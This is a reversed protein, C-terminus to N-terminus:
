TPAPPRCPSAATTPAPPFTGNSAPTPPMPLPPPAPPTDAPPAPPVITGLESAQPPGPCGQQEPLLQWLLPQQTELRHTALPLLQVGIGPVQAFPLQLEPLQPPGPLGQQVVPVLVLVEVPVKHVEGLVLHEDPTHAKHPFAAPAVQQVVVGNVLLLEM